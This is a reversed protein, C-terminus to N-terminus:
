NKLLMRFLMTTFINFITPGLHNSWVSYTPSELREREREEGTGKGRKGKEKVGVVMCTERKKTDQPFCKTRLMVKLNKSKLIILADMTSTAFNIGNQWM